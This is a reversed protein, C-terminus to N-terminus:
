IKIVIKIYKIKCFNNSFLFYLLSFAKIKAKTDEIVIESSPSLSVGIWDAKEHWSACEDIGPGLMINGKYSYEGYTIAGRIAFCRQTTEELIFKGMGDLILVVINKYDKQLYNDALALTGGVTPIKWKKLLRKLLHLAESQM